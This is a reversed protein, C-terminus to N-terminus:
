CSRAATMLLASRRLRSGVALTSPNPSVSISILNAPVVTLTTTDSFSGVTATLTTQGAGATSALGSADITATSLLQRRRPRAGPSAARSITSLVPDILRDAFKVQLFKLAFGSINLLSALGRRFGHWGHWSLGARKLVDKM